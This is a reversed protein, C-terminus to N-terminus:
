KGDTNGDSFILVVKPVNSRAGNKDTFVYNVVANLAIDLRSWSGYFKLGDVMNMLNKPDSSSNNDFVYFEEVDSSYVLISVHTGQPSIDISHIVDKATQRIREWGEKAISHSSDFVLALDM